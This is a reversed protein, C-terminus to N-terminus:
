KNRSDANRVDERHRLAVEFLDVASFHRGFMSIRNDTRILLLHGRITETAPDLGDLKEAAYQLIQEPTYEAEQPDHTYSGYTTKDIATRM